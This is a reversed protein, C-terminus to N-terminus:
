WRPWNVVWEVWRTDMASKQNAKLRGKAPMLRSSVRLKKATLRGQIGVRRAASLMITSTITLMARYLGRPMAPSTMPVATALATM